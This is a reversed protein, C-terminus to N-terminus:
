IVLDQPDGQAAPRILQAVDRVLGFAFQGAVNEILTRQWESEGEDPDGQRARSPQRGCQPEHPLDAAAGFTRQDDVQDIKKFSTANEVPQLVFPDFMQVGMEPGIRGDDRHQDMGQSSWGPAKGGVTWLFEVLRLHDCQSFFNLTCAEDHGDTREAAALQEPLDSVILPVLDLHNM